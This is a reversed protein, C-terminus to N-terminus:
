RCRCKGMSDYINIGVEGVNNFTFGVVDAPDGNNDVTVGDSINADTPIITANGELVISDPISDDPDLTPPDMRLTNSTTNYDLTNDNNGDKAELSLNYDEGSRLLDPFSPHKSTFVFHDPRAAFNDTSDRRFNAFGETICQYCGFSHNYALPFINGNANNGGTSYALPNCAYDRGAPIGVGYCKSIQHFNSKGFIDEVYKPSNFCAPMGSLNVSQDPNVVCASTSPAWSLIKAWDLYALKLRENRHAHTLNLGSITIDSVGQYFYSNAPNNLPPTVTGNNELTVLVAMPKNGHWAQYETNSLNIDRHVLKINFPRNVIKTTINRDLKYDYNENIADISIYKENGRNIRTFIGANLANSKGGVPENTIPTTYRKVYTNGNPNKYKAYATNQASTNIDTTNLQTKVDVVFQMTYSKNIAVTSLKCSVRRDSINYSCDPNSIENTTNDGDFLKLKTTDFHNIDLTQSLGDFDFDDFIEVSEAVEDGTNKFTITYELQSSPYIPVTPSSKIRTGNEYVIYASKNINDIVPSTLDTAFTFMSVSYTDDNTSAPRSVDFFFNANRQANNMFTSVDLRDADVGYTKTVGPNIDNGFVTMTSNFINTAPNATNNLATFVNNKDKMRLAGGNIPDGDAAFFALSANIPGSRPTLFGSVSLPTNDQTMLQFGNFISIDKYNLTKNADEYVTVLTWGGYNGQYVSGETLVINGVSYVGNGANRVLNTVEAFASYTLIKAPYYNSILRGNPPTPFSIRNITTAQISVYNNSNPVKFQIRALSTDIDSTADSYNAYSSNTWNCGTGAGSNTGAADRSCINGEWYLGAWKIRYTSNINLISSSSNYIGNTGDTNIYSMNIDDNYNQNPDTGRFNINTNGILSYDGNLQFGIYKTLPVSNNQTTGSTVTVNVTSSNNGTNSEPTNAQVNATNPITTPQSPARVTVVVPAASSGATYVGNNAVYDCVVSLGESCVWDTGGDISVFGLAPDLTDTIRVGSADASGMNSTNFTYTYSSSTIVSTSSATKTIGMDIDVGTINTTTSSTNNSLDPDITDSTVEA